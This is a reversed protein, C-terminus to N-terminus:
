TSRPQLTICWFDTLTQLLAERDQVWGGYYLSSMARYLQLLLLYARRQAEDPTFHMWKRRNQVLAAANEQLKAQCEAHADAPMERLVVKTSEAYNDWTAFVQLLWGRVGAESVDPLADFAESLMLTREWMESLLERIIDQKGSFHTYVTARSTSAARAIDDIGTAQTGNKVFLERSVELLRQRTYNKQQKRLPLPTAQTM